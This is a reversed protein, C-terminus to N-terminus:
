VCVYMSASLINVIVPPVSTCGVRFHFQTTISVDSVSSLILSSPLTFLPLENGYFCKCYRSTINKMTGHCRSTCGFGWCTQWTTLTAQCRVYLYAICLLPLITFHTCTHPTHKHTHPTHTHTHSLSLTLATCLWTFENTQYTHMHKDIYHVTLAQTLVYHM